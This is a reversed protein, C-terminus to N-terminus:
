AARLSPTGNRVISMIGDIVREPIREGDFRAVAQGVDTGDLWAYPFRNSASVSLSFVRSRSEIWDLSICGDPEVSFEPMPIEDPLVRLFQEAIRLSVPDIVNSADSSYEVALANLQSIAFAKAGFLAESREFAALVISARQKVSNAEPSVANGACALNQIAAFSAIFGITPITQRM